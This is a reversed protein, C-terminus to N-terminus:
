MWELFAIAVAVAALLGAGIRNVQVIARKEVVGSRAASQVKNMLLPMWYLTLMCGFVLVGAWGFHFDLRLGGVTILKVSYALLLLFAALATMHGCLRRYSACGRWDERESSVCPAVKPHARVIRGVGREVAFGAVFCLATAVYVLCWVFDCEPPIDM